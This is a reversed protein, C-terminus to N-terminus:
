EKDLIEVPVKSLQKFREADAKEGVIAGYHMPIVLQPDFTAVAEAAEAATMVYTGSVAMLAVDINKLRAMEPIFDSDGCHYIRKSNMDVVYGIWENDKPHFKKNTNYAAVAEIGINGMTVDKGPNMIICERFDLKGQFKSQCDAPALIVTKPTSIKKMDEISCHDYHAHTILIVDAPQASNIQYPDIYIIRNNIADTIRFGDHGLWSINVNGIKM